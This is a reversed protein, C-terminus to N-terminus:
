NVVLRVHQKGLGAAVFEVYYLGPVLATKTNLLFEHAGEGKTVSVNVQQGSIGFMRVSRVDLNAASLAFVGQNPNPYITNVLTESAAKVAVIRSLEYTGKFDNQKLQYYYTKGPEVDTDQFGYVNSQSTTANGAVFGIQEFQKGDRSKLVEFGKNNEESATKWSLAISHKSATGEFSIYTVPLAKNLGLGILVPDHDASRFQDASYLGSVQAASKFETNYDMVSPEDANIHWKAAGTVQKALSSSALAHDLSGIQGDFVYSYSTAPLLNQYGASALITLPEEKAYANLDGLILYDPDQSGTPKQALWAALDAAQRSRTGNSFGQGDGANADGEAGSSSGKSKFHNVVVTFEESNSNQTFTQALPRRGVLDFAASTTLTAANGTPTVQTTKYIIGVTILDTSIPAGASSPNVFAYDGSGEPDANLGSVLDELAATPTTGNYQIEMLGILDAGSRILAKIIKAKQRGFEEANNAGRYTDGSVDLDVFYNLVNASGVKLTPTGSLTGGTLDPPTVPRQNSPQFDVGAATQIRYGELREDLIGVISTVQDGGRLTNSASLPNGGRGFIIPDPNQRTSGDDLLIQRRAIQALYASYGAADPANFQTFQDLRADTGPQNGEGEVSLLVQGYRGLEFFETVALNGTTASLEALMGEYRELDAVNVVPLKVAVPAPLTSPGLNAFSTLTKIETLRTTVGSTTGVFDVVTGTLNVKDGQNPTVVGVPDSSVNFVFIGESTAPDSDADADEEQVYFGNLGTAGTFTRTVVGEITYEGTLAALQGSGQIASIKTASGPPAITTFNWAAADTIGSFDNGAVDSFAGASLTVSYSKTNLLTVGSITIAPGNVVVNASQIDVIETTNDTTNTITFAGAKKVVDESLTLILNTTLQVNTANDQPSLGSIVPATIDPGSVTEDITVDDLAIRDRSGTTGVSSEWYIWRLQVLNQNELTAPLTLSFSAAHGAANGASAYVDGGTGLDVFNGTDGIRYQLALSNDRSAQQQITRATWEVLVNTKGITNISIVVAGAANSGSALMAIGNEGNPGANLWGGSSPGTLYPLDGNAPSTTRSTPIAASTTGFRHVAVGAPLTSGAIETFSFPLNQAPPWTQAFGSTALASIWVSCIFLAFTKKSLYNMM